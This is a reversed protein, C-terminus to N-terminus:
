ESDKIAQLVQEVCGVPDRKLMAPSFRFVLWRLAAAANLKERDPDQAHRGGRALWAGGDVEVAVRLSPWAWDFRWKRTPHFRYEAVPAPAAPALLQWFHLFLGSKDESM